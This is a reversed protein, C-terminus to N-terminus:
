EEELWGYLYMEPDYAGPDFRKTRPKYGAIGALSLLADLDAQRRSRSWSLAKKLLRGFKDGECLAWIECADVKLYKRDAAEVAERFQEWAQGSTPFLEAAIAERQALRSRVLGMASVLQPLSGGDCEVVAIDGKDFCWVWFVPVRYAAGAVWVTRAGRRSGGESPNYPEPTNEAFLCAKNSM